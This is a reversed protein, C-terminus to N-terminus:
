KGFDLLGAELCSFIPVLPTRPRCCHLTRLVLILCHEPSLQKVGPNGQAHIETEAEAEKGRGGAVPM